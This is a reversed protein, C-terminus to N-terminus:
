RITMALLASRCIAIPLTPASCATTHLPDDKFDAIWREPGDSEIVIQWKTYGEETKMSLMKEVVKWVCEINRTYSGYDEGYLPPNLGWFKMNCKQCVRGISDDLEDTPIYEWAHVCLGMVKESILIDFEKGAPLNYIYDTRM